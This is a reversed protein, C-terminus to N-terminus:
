SKGIIPIKFFNLSSLRKEYLSPKIDRANGWTIGYNKSYFLYGDMKEIYLWGQQEDVFIQPNLEPYSCKYEKPEFPEKKYSYTEVRLV